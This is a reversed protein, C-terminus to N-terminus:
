LPLTRYTRCLYVDWARVIKGYHSVAIRRLPTISSFAASINHPVNKRGADQVFLASRGAFPEVGSEETYTQDDPKPTGPPRAVFEDYRPWFSFQNEIAQSEVIYCPPHGPGEVRKDRLYFSIESARDRADAILFLKEGTQQEAEGRINELATTANHWGWTTDSPDHRNIKFGIARISDTNLFVASFLLGLALATAGMFRWGASERIREQWFAVALLAFGPLALADWNPAATKHLSLITYFAFVPLGFWMLFLRRPQMKARQWSAIAAIAIALFLLPSYTVFHVSLFKLLETPHLGFGGDIEGRARLHGVTAWAHQANWQWPPVCALAFLILCLYFGPRRFEVRLRPILALVVVISVLAFANTYKCLFGLGLALGTLLWYLFSRPSNETVRWFSWMMALWFFLSLPDITMLVSGVNFLPTVNLAIVSWLAARADFLRRALYFFIISSGASLFPSFFRVGFENAGFLMTTARIAFAVGPGKSFYAPALRGSWLWYHAEDFNLDSTWLMSLRVLTLAGLFLWVAREIKM